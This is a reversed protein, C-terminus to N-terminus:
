DGSQWLGWALCVWGLILSIGGIPTIMAFMKIGSLVYAWLSGSFLFIGIGFAWPTAKMPRSERGVMLMSTMLLALAHIAMYRAALQWTALQDAELGQRELGHAGFAGGAVSVMGLIAALAGWSRDIARPKM